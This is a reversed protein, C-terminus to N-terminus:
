FLDSRTAPAARDKQKNGSVGLIGGGIMAASGAVSLYMGIDFRVNIAGPVQGARRISETAKALNRRVQVAYGLAFVLTAIGLALIVVHVWNARRAYWRWALLGLAVLPILPLIRGYDVDVGRVPVSTFLAFTVVWPSYAGIFTLAAGAGEALLPVSGRDGLSEAAAM